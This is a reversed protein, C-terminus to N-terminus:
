QVRFESKPLPEAPNKCEAKSENQEDTTSM